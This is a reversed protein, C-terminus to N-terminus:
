LFIYTDNYAIHCRDTRLSAINEARYISIQINYLKSLNPQRVSVCQNSDFDEKDLGLASFNEFEFFHVCSCIKVYCCLDKIEQACLKPFTCVLICKTNWVM